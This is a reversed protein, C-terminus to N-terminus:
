LKVEEVEVEEAEPQKKGKRTKVEPEKDKLIEELEGKTKDDFEKPTEIPDVEKEKGEEPPVLLQQLVAIAGLNQDLQRQLSAAQDQARRLQLELNVAVNNLNELSKKLTAEDIM